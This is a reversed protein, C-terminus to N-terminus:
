VSPVVVRESVLTFNFMHVSLQPAILFSVGAMWRVAPAAGAYSLALGFSHTWAPGVINVRYREAEKVFETEKGVLSTVHWTGTVLKLITGCLIPSDHLGCQVLGSHNRRSHHAWQFISGHGERLRLGVPGWPCLGPREDAPRKGQGPELIRKLSISPWHHVARQGVRRRSWNKLM